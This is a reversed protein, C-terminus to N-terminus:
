TKPKRELTYFTYGQHKDEEMIHPFQEFLEGPTIPFFINTEDNQTPTPQDVLTLYCTECLPLCERYIDSGGIIFFQTKDNENQIMTRAQDAKTFRIQNNSDSNRIDPERAEPERSIVIHPRGKLPRGGPLSEFTKRGMVLTAGKTLRSFRRLDEPINWPLQGNQGILGDQNMAVILSVHRFGYDSTVNRLCLRLLKSM